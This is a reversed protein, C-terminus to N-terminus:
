SAQPSPAANTSVNTRQRLVAGGLLAALFTFLAGVFFAAQYGGNLSETRALGEALLSETRAAAVSALVALGLAGGMMFGTNVIGSALGSEEASVDSM